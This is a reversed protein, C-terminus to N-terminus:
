HLVSVTASTQNVERTLRGATPHTQSTKREAASNGATVSRWRGKHDLPGARVCNGQGSSCGLWGDEIRRRVEIGVRLEHGFLAANLYKDGKMPLLVLRCGAVLGEVVSNFGAHSM